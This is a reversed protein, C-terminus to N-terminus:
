ATVAQPKQLWKKGALLCGCLVLVAMVAGTISFAFAQGFHEYTTGAAVASIGGTLTQMGGLLGSAGAQREQPTAQAVAIGIGTVTLSDLISQTLGIGLMLYPLTMFGYSTMYLAGMALGFASVRLPGHRQAIKGGLTGFFIWPLGFLAVGANGVWNPANLDDMMIVWLSDYVGIMVYLALGVLIAGLVARLKLLDLAFREDTRDEVATESIKLQSINIGFIMTLGAIIIFPAALNFADVTLASIVPGIAFGAVEISVGRGLNGGINEPDSVIVIRKIAPIAIGAGLGMVFRGFLFAPLSEGFAMVLAGFANAIMGFSLLKRAHGKDALPAITLQALFSTFFGVAIISSLGTEQIGFETRWDDLMTFMVGYGAALVGMAVQLTIILRKTHV